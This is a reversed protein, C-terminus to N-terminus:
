DLEDLSWRLFDVETVIGVLNEDDDVVPLCGFRNDLLARAAEKASSDPTTTRVNHTMLAEATLPIFVKEEKAEIQTLVQAQARLIDRHTILGVLKKGSVVPLHRIRNLKMERDAHLLDDGPSLTVLKTRMLDGVTAM